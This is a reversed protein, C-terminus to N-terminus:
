RLAAYDGPGVPVHDAYLDTYFGNQTPADVNAGFSALMAVIDPRHLAAAVHLPTVGNQGKASAKEYGVDNLIFYEEIKVAVM